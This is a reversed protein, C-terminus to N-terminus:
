HKRRMHLILGIDLAKEREKSLKLERRKQLILRLAFDVIIFVVVTLIVILLVM